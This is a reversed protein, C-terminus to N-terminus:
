QSSPANNKQVATLVSNVKEEVVSLRLNIKNDRDDLLANNTNGIDMLRQIEARLVGLKEDVTMEDWLKEPM